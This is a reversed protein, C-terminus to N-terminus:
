PVTYLRGGGMCVYLYPGSAPHDMTFHSVMHHLCTAPYSHAATTNHPLRPLTRLAPLPLCRPLRPPHYAASAPTATRRAPPAAPLHYCAPLLGAPLQTAHYLRLVPPLPQLPMAVALCARAPPLFAFCLMGYMILRGGRRHCFAVTTVPIPIPLIPHYVCGVMTVHARPHSCNTRARTPCPTRTHTYDVGVTIWQPHACAGYVDTPTPIHPPPPPLPPTAPRYCTPRATHHAFWWQPPPPPTSYHCALCM